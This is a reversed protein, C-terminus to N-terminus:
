ESKSESQFSLTFDKGFLNKGVAEHLNQDANYIDVAGMDPKVPTWVMGGTRAAGYVTQGNITIKGPIGLTKIDFPMRDYNTIECEVLAGPIVQQYNGEDALIVLQVARTDDELHEAAKRLMKQSMCCLLVTVRWSDQHYYGIGYCQMEVLYLWRTQPRAPRHSTM